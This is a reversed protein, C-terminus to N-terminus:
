LAFQNRLICLYFHQLNWEFRNLRLVMVKQRVPAPNRHQFHLSRRREFECNVSAACVSQIKTKACKRLNCAHVHQPKCEFQKIVCCPITRRTKAVNIYALSHSYISGIQKKNWTSVRILCSALRHTFSKNRQTYKWCPWKKNWYMTKTASASRSFSICVFVFQVLWFPKLWKWILAIANCELHYKQFNMQSIGTLQAQIMSTIISTKWFMNYIIHLCAFIVFFVKANVCM